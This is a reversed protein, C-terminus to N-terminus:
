GDTPATLGTLLLSTAQDRHLPSQPSYSGERGAVIGEAAAANIELRHTSDAIDDFADQEVPALGLWRTVIAAAHARTVPAGPRFSGDAYGTITDTAALAAIADEHVSGDVDDFDHEGGPEIQATAVFWTAFQGRTVSRDPGFTGDGFGSVVGRDTLVLISEAHVTTPYDVDDFKTPCTLEPTATAATAASVEALGVSSLGPLAQATARIVDGAETATYHFGGPTDSTCDQQLSTLFTRADSAATEEGTLAFAVAALGTSNANPGTGAGGLGGDVDQQDLLWATASAASTTRGVSDLAQVAFATADVDSECTEADLQEPFGGDDCTQAALYGVADLSPATDAVRELAIVALSQTIVNSFDGFASTDRYRGDADETAELETVLDLGEILTSTETADAVILLKALSGAYVDGTATGTYAPAQSRLWATAADIREGALQTGALALVVDATLGADPYTQGDFTTEIREGDVLAGALYGAAAESPDGAPALQASAATPLLTALATAAALVASATRRNTRVM